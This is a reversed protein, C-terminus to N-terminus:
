NGNGQSPAWLYTGLNQARLANIQVQQQGDLQGAGSPQGDLNLNGAVHEGAQVPLTNTQFAYGDAAFAPAAGLMLATAATLILTRM